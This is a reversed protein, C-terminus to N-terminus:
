TIIKCYILKLAVCYLVYLIIRDNWVLLIFAGFGAIFQIQPNYYFGFTLGHFFTGGGLFNFHM